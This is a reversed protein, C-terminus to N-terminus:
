LTVCAGQRIQTYGKKWLVAEGNVHHIGYYYRRTNTESMGFYKAIKKFSHTPYEKKYLNIMECWFKAKKTCNISNESHVKVQRMTNTHTSKNLIAGWLDKLPAWHALESVTWRMKWHPCLVM